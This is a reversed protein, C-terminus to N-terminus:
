LTEKWEKVKEAEYKDKERDWRNEYIAEINKSDAEMGWDKIKVNMENENNKKVENWEKIHGDRVTM